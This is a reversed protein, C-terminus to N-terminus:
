PSAETEQRFLLAVLYIASSLRNMARLLDPAVVPHDATPAFADLAALEVERSQTRLVNMWHLTEPDCGGPTLHKVGMLGAPDHTAARIAPEDFGAIEIDAPARGNYEASSIERCYAAITDLREATRKQDLARARSAALMVLAHLSDMRGRFRIRPTNKPAFSHADLQTMREPKETVPNNCLVCRPTDGELAVPFEAARNWSPPSPSSSSSPSSAVPGEESYEVTVSWQKLFDRAAPTLRAAEPLRLHMGPRPPGLISRLNQETYLPASM